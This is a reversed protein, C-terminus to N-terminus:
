SLAVHRRVTCRCNHCVIDGAVYYGEETSLDYVHGSFEFKRVQVLKDVSVQRPYRHFLDRLLTADATRSQGPVEPCRAHLNAAPGLRLSESPGPHGFSFSPVLDSSRMLGPTTGSVGHLSLYAPGSGPLSTAQPRAVPLIRQRGMEVEPADVVRPLPGDTGVVHIEGDLFRGDGHLDPPSAPVRHLPGSDSLMQFVDEIFAPGNEYDGHRIGLREPQAYAILYDGEQLAKAPAFGQSTLVPHNTTVALRKGSATILELVPGEYWGRLAGIINGQVFQGPLLCNPHPLGDNSATVLEQLGWPSASELDRCHADVRADRATIWSYTDESRGHKKFQEFRARNAVRTTESRVIREVKWAAEGLMDAARRAAAGTNEGEQLATRIEDAITGTADSVVKGLRGKLFDPDDQLQRVVSRDRAEFAAEPTVAREEELGLRYARGVYEEGLRGFEEQLGHAVDATLRRLETASPRRGAMRRFDRAAKDLRKKLKSALADEAKRIGAIAEEPPINRTTLSKEVLAKEGVRTGDEFETGRDGGIRTPAIGEMFKELITRAEGTDVAWQRALIESVASPHRKFLFRLAYRARITHRKQSKPHSVAPLALDDIFWELRKHTIGEGLLVDAGIFAGARDFEHSGGLMHHVEHAANALPDTEMMGPAIPEEITYPAAFIKLSGGGISSSGHGMDRPNTTFVISADIDKHQIARERIEKYSEGMEARLFKEADKDQPNQYLEIARSIVRNILETERRMDFDPVDEQIMLHNRVAIPPHGAPTIGTEYDGREPKIPVNSLNAIKSPRYATEPLPREPEGPVEGLIESIEARVEDPSAGIEGAVAEADQFMTRLAEEQSGPLRSFYDNLDNLFDRRGEDEGPGRPKGEEDEGTPEKGALVRRAEEGYVKRGQDNVAGTSGTSTKFATWGKEKMALQFPGEAMEGEPPAEGELGPTGEPQVQREEWDDIIIPWDFGAQPDLKANAGAARFAAVANAWATAENAKKELDEPAPPKMVWRWHTIEPFLPVLKGNVFEEIQSQNEEITDYSVQLQEESKGLKGAEQGGVFVFSVGLNIAVAKMAAEGWAIFDRNILDGLFHHIQVKGAETGLGLWIVGEYETHENRWDEWDDLMQNVEAQSRGEVTVMADPSRQGSLAALDFRETWRMTQGLAWTRHVKSRPYPRNGRARPMDDLVEDAAWVAVIIDGEGLQVWAPRKMFVGHDPCTPSEEDEHATHFVVDINDGDEKERFCAPCFWPGPLTINPDEVKRMSESNMSNLIVPRGLSDYIVEWNWWGITNNYYTADKTLDKFSRIARGTRPDWNPKELLRKIGGDHWPGGELQLPDAQEFEESFCGPTECMEPEVDYEAGCIPCLAQFLPEWDHGGKTTEEVVRDVGAGLIWVLDTLLVLGEPRTIPVWIGQQTRSGAVLGQPPVSRTTSSKELVWGPPADYRARPPRRLVKERVFTRAREVRTAM